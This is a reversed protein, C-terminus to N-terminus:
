YPEEQDENEAVAALDFNQVLPAPNAALLLANRIPVAVPKPSHDQVAATLEAHSTGFIQMAYLAILNIEFAQEELFMPLLQRIQQRADAHLKDLYRFTGQGNQYRRKRVLYHLLRYKAYTSVSQDALCDVLTKTAHTRAAAPCEAHIITEVLRWSAHKSSGHWQTLIAKLMDIHRPQRDTLPLVRGLFHCFDKADEDKEFAQGVEFHRNFEDFPHDTVALRQHQEPEDEEVLYDYSEYAKSRLDEIKAHEAIKTKSGNLNLGKTLLREQLVLMARKAVERDTAFIRMDDVYRGFAISQMSHMDEDISKLYLNALAGETNNGIALGQHMIEPDRPKGTLHSHSIVPLRLITRFLQMVEADPSIALQTAIATVLYEHSVADYFASIDTRLLTTFQAQSACEKQWKCFNPWSVEAFSELFDTERAEGRARRNAFCRPSLDSDLLELVVVVFAYRVVLDKFPIYIMRRYCLENKPPFYAYAPKPQYSRPSKLEEELDVIIMDENAAADELEFHDYYGDQLRDRLAYRLARRLNKPDRVANLIRAADGIM